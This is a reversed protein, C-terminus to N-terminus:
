PLGGDSGHKSRRVTEEFRRQMEEEKERKAERAAEIAERFREKLKERLQQLGPKPQVPETATVEEGELRGPAEVPEPRSLLAAAGGGAALLILLLRLM